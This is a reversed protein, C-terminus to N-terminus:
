CAYFLILAVDNSIKCCKKLSGQMLIFSASLVVKFRQLCKLVCAERELLLSIIASGYVLLPVLETHSRKRLDSKTM